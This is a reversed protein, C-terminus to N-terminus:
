SPLTMVFVSKAGEDPFGYGQKGFVAPEAPYPTRRQLGKTIGQPLLLSNRIVELDHYIWLHLTAKSTNWFFRKGMNLTCGKIQGHRVIARIGPTLFPSKDDYPFEDRDSCLCVSSIM